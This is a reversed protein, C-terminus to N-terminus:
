QLLWSRVELSNRVETFFISLRQLRREPHEGTQTALGSQKTPFQHGNVVAQKM